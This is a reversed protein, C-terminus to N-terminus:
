TAAPATMDMRGIMVTKKKSWRNKMSATAPAIL